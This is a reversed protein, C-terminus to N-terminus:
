SSENKKRQVQWSKTRKYEVELGVKLFDFVLVVVDDVVLEKRVVRNKGWFEEVVLLKTESSSNM